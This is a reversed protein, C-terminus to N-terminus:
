QEPCVRCIVQSGAASLVRVQFVDPVQDYLCGASMRGSRIM